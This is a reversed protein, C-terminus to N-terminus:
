WRLLDVETFLTSVLALSFDRGWKQHLSWAQSTDWCHKTFPHWHVISNIGARWIIVGLFQYWIVDTAEWVRACGAGQLPLESVSEIPKTLCPIFKLWTYNILVLGEAFSEARWTRDGTFPCCQRFLQFPRCWICEGTCALMTPESLLFQAFVSSQILLFAHLHWYFTNRSSKKKTKTSVKM